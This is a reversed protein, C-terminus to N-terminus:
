KLLADPCYKKFKLEASQCQSLITLSLDFPLLFTHGCRAINNIICYCITYTIINDVKRAPGSNFWTIASITCNSQLLM